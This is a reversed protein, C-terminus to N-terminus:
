KPGTKNAETMQLHLLARHTREAQTLRRVRYGQGQQPRIQLWERMISLQRHKVISLPLTIDVIKAIDEHVAIRLSYQTKYAPDEPIRYRIKGGIRKQLWQLVPLNTNGIGIHAGAGFDRLAVCGEGDLFGTIYGKELESLM